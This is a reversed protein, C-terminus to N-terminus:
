LNRNHVLSALALAAREEAAQEATSAAVAVRRARYWLFVLLQFLWIAADLVAPTAVRELGLAALLRPLHPVVEPHYALVCAVDHLPDALAAYEWDILWLRTGDVLNSGHLDSHALVPSRAFAGSDRWRREAGTLLPALQRQEEPAAAVIRRVYGRALAVPDLRALGPTARADIAQLAALREGLRDIQRPDTFDVATWSRGEVYETILLGSAIDADVVRPAVCVGAALRQVRTELRRDIALLADYATGLRVVYRGRSTTVRFSRNTLGGTLAEVQV